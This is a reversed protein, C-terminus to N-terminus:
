YERSSRGRLNVGTSACVGDGDWENWFGAGWVENVNEITGLMREQGRNM